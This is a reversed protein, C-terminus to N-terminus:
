NVNASLDAGMDSETNDDNNTDNWKRRETRTGPRNEVVDDDTHRMKCQKSTSIINLTPFVDCSQKNHMTCRWERGRETERGRTREAGKGLSYENYKRLFGATFLLHTFHTRKPSLHITSQLAISSFRVPGPFIRIYDLINSSPLSYLTPTTDHTTTYPLYRQQWHMCM